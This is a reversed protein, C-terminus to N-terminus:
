HAPPVVQYILALYWAALAAGFVILALIVLGVTRWGTRSVAASEPPAPVAKPAKARAKEMAALQASLDDLRMSIENIHEPPENIGSM